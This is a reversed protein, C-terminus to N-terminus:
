ERSNQSRGRKYYAADLTDGFWGDFGGELIKTDPHGALWIDWPANFFQESLIMRGAFQGAVGWLVCSCGFGAEGINSPYWITETEYDYLVFLFDYTWGSASFTLVQGDIERSYV